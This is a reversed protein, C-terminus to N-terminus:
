ADTVARLKAACYLNCISDADNSTSVDLIEAANQFFAFCLMGAAILRYTRNVHRSVRRLTVRESVLIAIKIEGPLM